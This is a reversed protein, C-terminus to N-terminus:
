EEARIQALRENNDTGNSGVLKHGEVGSQTKPRWNTSNQGSRCWDTSTQVTKHRDM